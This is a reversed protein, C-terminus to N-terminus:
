LRLRTMSQRHRSQYPFTAYWTYAGQTEPAKCTVKGHYEYKAYRANFARWTLSGAFERGAPSTGVYIKKGTLDCGASICIVAIEVEFSQNPQVKVPYGVISIGTDHDDAQVTFTMSSQVGRHHIAM